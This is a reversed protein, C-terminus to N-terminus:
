FFLNGESGAFGVPMNENAFELAGSQIDSVGDTSGKSLKNGSSSTLVVQRIAQANDWSSEIKSLYEDAAYNLVLTECNSNASQSGYVNLVVDEAPTNLDTYVKTSTAVM